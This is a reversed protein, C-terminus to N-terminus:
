YNNSKILETFERHVLPPLQNGEDDVVVYLEIKNKVYDIDELKDDDILTIFPLSTDVDHAAYKSIVVGLGNILAEKVVLPTGNEGDSLLVLNGYDTLHEKKYEDTWEGLYNISTDFPTSKSDKGVFD